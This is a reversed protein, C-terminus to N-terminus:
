VADQYDYPSYELALSDFTRVIELTWYAANNDTRLSVRVHLCRAERRDERSEFPTPLPDDLPSDLPVADVEPMKSAAHWFIGRGVVSASPCSGACNVYRV